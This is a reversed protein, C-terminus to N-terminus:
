ELNDLADQLRAYILIDTLDIDLEVLTSATQASIGVLIVRAGLLRVGSAAQMLVTMVQVNVGRLGSLDLILTRARRAHVDALLSQLVHEARRQDVSGILPLLLTSHGLPITPTTLEEIRLDQAAIMEQQIHLREAQADQAADIREQLSTSMQNFGRALRGIEDAGYREVRQTLDGAAVREAALTIKRIPSSILEAIVIAAVAAAALVVLATILTSTQANSVPALAQSRSQYLLVMWGMDGAQSTGRIPSLAILRPLGEYDALAYDSSRAQALATANGASPAALRSGGQKLIKDDILLDAHTGVSFRGEALQITISNARYTSRLVGILAGSDQDRIAIAIIISFSGSSSDFGPSGIFQGAAAARQWWEEDSQDYDSTRASAAVLAGRSDTLMLEATSPDLGAQDRLDAAVRNGLVSTILPDDDAAAPWRADAASIQRRAAADDTPYSAEHGTAAARLEDGVALGRLRTIQNDLTAGVLRAEAEARARLLRGSDDILASSVQMTQILSVAAIAAAAVLLFAFILKLSLSKRLSKM